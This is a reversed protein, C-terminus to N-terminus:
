SVAKIYRRYDYRSGSMCGPLGPCSIAAERYDDQFREWLHDVGMVEALALPPCWKFGAAMADDAAAPGESIDQSVVISYLIYIELLTKCIEAEASHNNKLIEYAAHYNGSRIEEMMAKQFPFSYHNVERYRGTEIDFVYRVKRGDSKIETRYLGNGTKEGLYGDDILQQAFAPLRFSGHFFDQTNRYVNDVIAKHVDLGVLDATVLPAMNRGTVGGFISDIYDIGGNYRYKEAYLMASNIFQFGIRNALFAPADSARVVTRCLKERCYVSAEEIVHENTYRTPILECLPMNYPPNFFHMGFFSRRQDDPLVSALETLSLGSSGTCLMKIRSRRSDMLIGSVDKLVAKKVDMDEKTSEFILDCLPLVTGMEAYGVPFLRGRISDARVSRVAKEVASVADEMKRSVMFVRAHGFSAFIASINRGMFGNAGIVAATHVEM